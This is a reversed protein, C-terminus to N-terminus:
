GIWTEILSSIEQSLTTYDDDTVTEPRTAAAAWGTWVGFIVMAVLWIQALRENDYTKEIM